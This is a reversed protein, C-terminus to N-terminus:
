DSRTDAITPVRLPRLGRRIMYDPVFNVGLQQTYYQYLLTEELRAGLITASKFRTFFEPLRVSYCVLRDKNGGENEATLLGDGKKV